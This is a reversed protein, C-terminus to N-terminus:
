GVMPVHGPRAAFRALWARIGPYDELSYGGEGAVHTYAYLSIDALGPADGVLWDHEALRKEMVGLAGHGKPRNEELKQAYEAEANLFVMWFRATAIFPEHSYQEFFMWELTRAETLADTPAWRTNRAFYWLIANSQTLTVGDGLEVVPIQGAPNLATFAPTRTEGAVVEVHRWQHAIALDALLLKVKYCNGSREDGHVVISM